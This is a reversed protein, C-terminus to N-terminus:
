FSHISGTMFSTGVYTIGVVVLGVLGFAIRVPGPAIPWYRLHAFTAFWFWSLLSWIVKADWLFWAGWSVVGWVSGFIMAASFLLLGTRVNAEQRQGFREPSTHGAWHDLGDGAAAIFLGYGAFSLPVHALYWGTYLLPSPYSLTPDFALTTGGFVAALVALLLRGPRESAEFRWTAVATLTATFGVFSEFKNTLPVFGIQLGRWALLAVILACAAAPLARRSRGLVELILWLGILVLATDRLLLPGPM